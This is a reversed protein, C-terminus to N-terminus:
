QQNTSGENTSTGNEEELGPLSFDQVNYVLWKGNEYKMKTFFNKEKVESKIDIGLLKKKIKYSVNVVINAEYVGHNLEISSNEMKIQLDSIDYNNKLFFYKQSLSSYISSRVDGTANKIDDKNESNLSIFVSNYFDKVVHEIDDRVTTNRLDLDIKIEPHDKVYVKESDLEGWPTECKITLYTTGDKPFPGVDKFDKVKIGSDEGNIYVEGDEFTSKVTVLIGNLPIDVKNNDMFVVDKEEKLDSNYSQKEVKVNYLGPIKNSIELTGSSSTTGTFIGNLYVSADQFNSIVNLNQKEIEVYWKEGFFTKKSELKTSYLEEGNNLAYVLKNIRNKDEQFFDIYPSLDEKTVGLNNNGEELLNLLARTNGKNLSNALQETVDSRKSNVNGYLFVIVVIIAVLMGIIIKPDKEKVIKDKIKTAVSTFKQGIEKINVKFKEM